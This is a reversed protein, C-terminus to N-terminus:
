KTKPAACALINALFKYAAAKGNSLAPALEMFCNVLVGNDPYQICLPSLFAKKNQERAAVRLPYSISANRVPLAGRSLVGEWKRFFAAPVKNPINFSASLSDVLILGSHSGAILMQSHVSDTLSLLKQLAPDTNLNILRGGSKVYAYLIYRLRQLQISDTPLAEDAGSIVIADLKQLSDKVLSSVTGSNLDVEDIWSTFDKFGADQVEYDLQNFANEFVDGSLGNLYLLRGGRTHITDGVIMTQSHYNYIRPCQYPYGVSKINSSFAQVGEPLKLLVTPKLIPTLPNLHDIVSSNLVWGIKTRAGPEPTIYGADQYVMSATDSQVKQGNVMAQIGVQRIKFLVVQATDKFLTKM